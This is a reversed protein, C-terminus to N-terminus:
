AAAIRAPSVGSRGAFREYGSGLYMISAAVVFGGDICLYCKHCQLTSNYKSDSWFLACIEAVLLIVTDAIQEDVM